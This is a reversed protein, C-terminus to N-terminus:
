EHVQTQLILPVQKMEMKRETDQFIQNIYESQEKLMNAFNDVLNKNAKELSDDIEKIMVAFQNKSENPLNSIQKLNKIIANNQEVIIDGLQKFQPTLKNFQISMNLHFKGMEEAINRNIISEFNAM